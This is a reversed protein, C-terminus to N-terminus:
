FLLLRSFINSKAWSVTGHKILCSCLSIFFLFFINYSVFSDFYNSTLNNFFDFIALTNFINFCLFITCLHNLLFYPYRRSLDHLVFSHLIIHVFPIQWPWVCWLGLELLVKLAWMILFLTLPDLISLRHTPIERWWIWWIRVHPMLRVLHQSSYVWNNVSM